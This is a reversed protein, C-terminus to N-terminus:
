SSEALVMDLALLADDLDDPLLIAGDVPEAARGGLAVILEPRAERLRRVVSAAAPRDTPTVAGIVAVRAHEAADIWDAQPLDPGLYTVPLGARRAAIAFALAGLEHRSGPPLGVLV